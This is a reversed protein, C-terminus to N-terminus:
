KSRTLTRQKEAFEVIKEDIALGKRKRIENMYRLAPNEYDAKEGYHLIEEETQPIWFPDMDIIEWHSFVLQPMALGSTQKRIEAAFDFSEIVPLHATVTFMSSGEIMNENVIKGQRKNLVAYMKGLVDAKVAIDCSYMAAMLRQPRAQFAKRCSEKVVSVIQGSLPGYIDNTNIEESSEDLNLDTLVFACGMLPEECLPGALCALQFGNELSTEYKFSCNGSKNIMINPGTKRPGYALIQNASNHLEEHHNLNFIADLKNQFEKFILLSESTLNGGHGDGSTYAKLLDKQEEILVIAENPLPIALISVSCQKNPTQMTVLKEEMCDEEIVKNDENLEENVMDTKPPDVITERFPVIPSSAVVDVGAYTEKLDRICRELHVEGATM